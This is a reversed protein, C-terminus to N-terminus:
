RSQALRQTLVREGDAGNAVAWQRACRGDDLEYIFIYGQDVTIGSTQGTLSLKTSLAVFPGGLDIVEQIETQTGFVSWTNRFFREMAPWGSHTGSLDMLDVLINLQADPTYLRGLYDLDSQDSAAWGALFLRTLLWRRLRSGRPEAVLRDGVKRGISPLRSVLRDSMRLRVDNQDIPWRPAGTFSPAEAATEDSMTPVM